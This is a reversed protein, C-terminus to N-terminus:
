REELALGMPPIDQKRMPSLVMDRKTWDPTHMSKLVGTDCGTVDSLRATRLHTLRVEELLSNFVVEDGDVGTECKRNLDVTSVLSRRLLDSGDENLFVVGACGVAIRVFRRAESDRSFSLM